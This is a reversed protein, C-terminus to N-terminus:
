NEILKKTLNIIINLLVVKLTLVEPLRVVFVHVVNQTHMHVFMLSVSYLLFFVM